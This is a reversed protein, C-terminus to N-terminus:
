DPESAPSRGKWLLRRYLATVLLANEAWDIVPAREAIEAYNWQIKEAQLLAAALGDTDGPEVLLGSRGPEVLDPIAGVRTAVVPTGTALSEATVLSFGESNSPVVLLRARRFYAPLEDHSIRGTLHVRGSLGFSQIGREIQPRLYGEGILILNSASQSAIKAFAEVLLLPNKVPTLSGIFLIDRAGTKPQYYFLKSDYGNPIHEVREAAYPARAHFAEALQRSVAIIADARTIAHVLFPGVLPVSMQRYFDSGHLTVVVPVHASRAVRIATIGDPLAFHAHILDPQRSLRSIEQLALRTYRPVAGVIRVASPLRAWARLPISIVRIADQLEDRRESLDWRGTIVTIDCHASLARCQEQVFSGLGPSEFSPYLHTLVVISPRTMDHTAKKDTVFSM